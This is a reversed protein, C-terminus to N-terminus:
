LDAKDILCFNTQANFYYKGKEGFFGKDHLIYKFNRKEPEM